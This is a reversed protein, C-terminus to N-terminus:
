APEDLELEPNSEERGSWEEVKQGTHQEIWRAVMHRHCFNIEDFPPREFCLLVARGEQSRAELDRMVQEPDLPGLIDAWFKPEYEALPMKLMDPTPALARYLKYGASMGRPSYRSIGIRGHDKYTFWSSTFIEM